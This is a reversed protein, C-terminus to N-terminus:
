LSRPKGSTRAERIAVLMEDVAAADTRDFESLSDFFDPSWEAEKALAKEVARVIFRNRSIRLARARRDVAALVPGPIHITTAMVITHIYEGPLRAALAITAQRM